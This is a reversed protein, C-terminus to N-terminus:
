REDKMVGQAVDDDNAIELLLTALAFILEERITATLIPQPENFLQLSMQKFRPKWNKEKPMKVVKSARNCLLSVAFSFDNLVARQVIGIPM